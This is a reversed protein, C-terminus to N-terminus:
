QACAYKHRQSEVSNQRPFSFGLRNIKRILQRDLKVIFMTFRPFFIFFSHNVMGVSVLSFKIKSELSEGPQNETASPASTSACLQFWPFQFLFIKFDPRSFSLLNKQFMDHYTMREISLSSTSTVTKKLFIFIKLCSIHTLVKSWFIVWQHIQLILLKLTWNLHLLSVSFINLCIM